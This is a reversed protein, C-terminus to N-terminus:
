KYKQALFFHTRAFSDPKSNVSNQTVSDIKEAAGGNFESKSLETNYDKKLPM